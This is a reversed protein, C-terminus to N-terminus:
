FITGNKKGILEELIKPQSLDHISDIGIRRIFNKIQMEMFVYSGPSPPGRIQGNLTVNYYTELYKFYREVDPPSIRSNFYTSITQARRKREDQDPYGSWNHTVVEQNTSPTEPEDESYLDYDGFGNDAM